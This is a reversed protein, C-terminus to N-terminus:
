ERERRQSGYFEFAKDHTPREKSRERSRGPWESKANEEDLLRLLAGALVRIENRHEERRRKGAHYEPRPFM